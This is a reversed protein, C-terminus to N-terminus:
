IFFPKAPNKSHERTQRLVLESLHKGLDFFGASRLVKAVEASRAESKPLLIAKKDEYPKPLFQWLYTARFSVMAKHFGNNAEPAYPIVFMDYDCQLSNFASQNIGYTRLKSQIPVMVDLRSAIYRAAAFHHSGGSNILFFRGDWLFRALFDDTNGPKLIRIENHALNKRLKEESISDIMERSNTKVMEDLSSFDSLSSKSSSLGTVAQIDVECDETFCSGFNAFEDRHTIFSRYHGVDNRWGMLEGRARHPWYSIPTTGWEHWRVVSNTTSITKEPEVLVSRLEPM